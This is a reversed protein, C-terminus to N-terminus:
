FATALVSLEFRIELLISIFSLAFIYSKYYYNNDAVFKLTVNRKIRM